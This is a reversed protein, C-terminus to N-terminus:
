NIGTKGFKLQNEKGIAENANSLIIKISQNLKKHPNKCFCAFTEFHSIVKKEECSVFNNYSQHPMFFKLNISM